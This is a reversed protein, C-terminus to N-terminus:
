DVIFGYRGQYKLNPDVRGPIGYLRNLRGMFVTSPDAADAFGDDPRSLDKPKVARVVYPTVLIMLETQRNVYDRSKFLSGLIPLQMLGPLGNVQQKTQEHIMGAMALAGGSPIEVTTEARRVRLSPITFGSSVLSAETSLESVETTVKMSIRGESLVVPTFGLSIGFKKFEITPTCSNVSQCSVGTVVPFEGGALFNASEGSIATLNPEALLRMVGAREMARITAGLRSNLQGSLRSPDLNTNLPTRAGYSPVIATTALDQGYATFPTDTNFNIVSSGGGVSGSLNIGLQKIVERQVEAVTVRLNVQDRGKVAIANVVKDGAGVMTTTGAGMLRSAIEFASQSDAQSDVWGSLVVGEPGLAEIRIDATPLAQRIAERIGNLDRKVAIDFGAIQNGQADFFFMSTQGVKAGIMYARRTSRIVANAVTPDAVLVDKVDRPLDIIVAKGIGLSVPRSSVESGVVSIVPTRRLDPEAAYGTTVSAALPVAILLTRIMTLDAM